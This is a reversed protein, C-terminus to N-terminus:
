LMGHAIYMQMELVIVMMGSKVEEYHSSLGYYSLMEQVEESTFGFTEDFENDTISYVTFNNLGTFISEKAIRLCGTLVALRLARM